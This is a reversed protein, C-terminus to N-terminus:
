MAMKHKLLSFCINEFPTANGYAFITFVAIFNDDATGCSLTSNHLDTTLANVTLNTDSPIQFQGAMITDGSRNFRTDSSALSGPGRGEAKGEESLFFWNTVIQSGQTNLLRCFFSLQLSDSTFEEIVTGSEPIALDLETCLVTTSCPTLTHLQVKGSM